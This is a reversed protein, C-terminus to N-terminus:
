AAGRITSSYMALAKATLTATDAITHTTGYMTATWLGPTSGAAANGLVGQRVYQVALQGTGDIAYTQAAMRPFNFSGDLGINEYIMSSTNSANFQNTSLKALGVYPVAEYYDVSFSISSGNNSQYLINLSLNTTGQLLRKTYQSFVGISGLDVLTWTNLSGAPAFAWPTYTISTTDIGPLIQVRMKLQEPTGATVRIRAFIRYPYALINSIPITPGAEQDVTGTNTLALSTGGYAGTPSISGTQDLVVVSSGSPMLALWLQSPKNTTTGLIYQVSLPAPSDGPVASLTATNLTPKNTISAANALTTTASAHAVPELLLVMVFTFYNNFLDADMDTPQQWLATPWQLVGTLVWYATNTANQPKWALRVPSGFRQEEYVVASQLLTELTALQSAVNNISSGQVTCTITAQGDIFSGAVTRQGDVYPWGSTRSVQRLPPPPAFNVLRIGPSATSALDCTTTGDSLTLTHAM